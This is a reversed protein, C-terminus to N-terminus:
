GGAFPPLVDVTVGASLEQYPHAALGDVLFACRQLVKGVLPELAVRLEPLSTVSLTLEKVGAAAAAAAFLRVTVETTM